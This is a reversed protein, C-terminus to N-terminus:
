PLVSRLFARLTVDDFDAFRTRVGDATDERFVEATTFHRGGRGHHFAISGRFVDAAPDRWLDLAAYWSRGSADEFSRLDVTVPGSGVFGDDAELHASPNSRFDERWVEFPPLPLRDACYDALAGLTDGGPVPDPDPAGRVAGDTLAAGYISRVGARPLLSLLAAGQRRRYAAYRRRLGADAPVADPAVRDLRSPPSPVAGPRSGGGQGTERHARSPSEVARDTRTDTTM